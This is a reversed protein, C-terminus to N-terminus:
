VISHDEGGEEGSEQVEQTTSASFFQRLMHEFGVAVSAHHDPVKLDYGFRLRSTSSLCAGLEGHGIVTQTQPCRVTQLVGLIKNQASRDKGMTAYTMLMRTQPSLKNQLSQGWVEGACTDFVGMAYMAPYLEAAKHLSGKLNCGSGSHGVFSLESVTVGRPLNQTAQDVVTKMDFASGWLAPGCAGEPAEQWGAGKKQTPIVVIVPDAKGQEVLRRLTNLMDTASKMGSSIAGKHCGHFYVIMPLQGPCNGEKPIFVGVGNPPFWDPHETSQYTFEKIYDQTSTSCRHSGARTLPSVVGRTEDQPLFAAGAFEPPIGNIFDAHPYKYLRAIINTSAYKKLAEEANKREPVCFIGKANKWLAFDYYTGCDSTTALGGKSQLDFLSQYLAFRAALDLYIMAKSGDQVKLMVDISDKGLVKELCAQSSGDQCKKASLRVFATTLVVLTFIVLLINFLMGKKSNLASRPLMSKEIRTM